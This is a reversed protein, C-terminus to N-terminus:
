QTKDNGEMRQLEMLRDCEADYYMDQENARRNTNCDECEMTEPNTAERRQCVVCLDDLSDVPLEEFVWNKAEMYEYQAATHEVAEGIMVPEGDIVECVIV